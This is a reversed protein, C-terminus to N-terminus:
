APSRTSISVRTRLIGRERADELFRFLRIPTHWRIALQAFAISASWTEPCAVGLGLGTLGALLTVGLILLDIIFAPYSLHAGFVSLGVLFSIVAVIAVILRLAFSKDRQWTTYPTLPNVDGIEAQSFSTIIWAAVGTVIGSSIIQLTAQGQMATGRVGLGIVVAFGVGTALGTLLARGSFLQRRKLPAV